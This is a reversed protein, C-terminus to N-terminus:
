YGEPHNSLWNPYNMKLADRAGVTPLIVDLGGDYPHFVVQEDIAVIMVSGVEDDAVLRFIDNLECGSYHIKIAHFHFYYEEEGDGVEYPSNTSWFEWKSFLNALKEEPGQPVKETSYEPLILIVEKSLVILDRFILNYRSFIEDYESELEPYRKSNPLAHFRVWRNKFRHKLDDPVVSCNELSSEWFEKLNDIM